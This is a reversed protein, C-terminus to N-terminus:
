DSVLPVFRVEGLNLTEYHSEDHRIIKVLEQKQNPNGVPIIMVGNDSSLQKLLDEPITKAAATVIIRDFPAFKPLGKSGDGVKINAKTYGLKTLLAKTKFALEPHREISYVNDALECLVAMQYGSGTGIELIKHEPKIQLLQSMLAVMYPQSITQNQDIKFPKDAYADTITLFRAFLHRPVKGMAKLVKNDTIDRSKLQTDVMNSRFKAAEESDFDKSLM